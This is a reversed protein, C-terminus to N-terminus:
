LLAPPHPSIHEALTYHHDVSCSILLAVKLWGVDDHSHAVIHVNIVGDRPGGSTKYRGASAGHLLALLCVLGLGVQLQSVM